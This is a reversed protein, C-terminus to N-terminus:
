DERLEAILDGLKSTLYLASADTVCDEKVLSELSLSIDVGVREEKGALRRVDLGGGCRLIRGSVIHDRGASALLSKQRADIRRRLSSCADRGRYEDLEDVVEECLLQACEIAIREKEVEIASGNVVLLLDHLCKMVSAATVYYLHHLKWSCRGLAHRREVVGEEVEPPLSNELLARERLLVNPLSHAVSPVRDGSPIKECLVAVTAKHAALVRVEVARIGGCVLMAVSALLTCRSIARGKGELASACAATSALGHCSQWVRCAVKM